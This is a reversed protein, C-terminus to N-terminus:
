AVTYALGGCNDTDRPIHRSVNDPIDADRLVIGLANKYSHFM